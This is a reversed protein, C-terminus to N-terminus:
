LMRLIQGYPELQRKREKWDPMLSTMLHHFRPSHDPILLHALEHVVVYEICPVPVCVLRKNFVVTNTAPCCSGWRSVMHRFQLTPMDVGYASFLALKEECIKPLAEKACHELLGGIAKKIAEQERIDTVTILVTDGDLYATNKRGEEVYLRREKGWLPLMGGPCLSVTGGMSPEAQSFRSMARIMFDQNSRVFADVDRVPIRSHASVLITGDSRIRLNMNKVNKQILEYEFVTDGLQIYRIM